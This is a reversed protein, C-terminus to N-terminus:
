PASPPATPVPRRGTGERAPTTVFGTLPDHCPPYHELGAQMLLHPRGHLAQERLTRWHLREFLPGHQAQVHALFRTCGRARASGVALRILTAGLHGHRRHAADVALRSGWWLGDGEAHIRVTGVVRDPMGGVCALAVLPQAHADVADRDDGDFLGQEECFVTRRLRRAAAIEWGGDAWKVRFESPAFALPLECLAEM